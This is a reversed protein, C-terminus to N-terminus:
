APRNARLLDPESSHRDIRIALLALLLWVATASPLLTSVLLHHLGQTLLLGACALTVLAAGVAWALVKSMRYYGSRSLFLRILLAV